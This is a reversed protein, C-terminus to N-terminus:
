TTSKPALVFSSFSLFFRAHSNVLTDRTCDNDYVYRTYCFKYCATVYLLTCSSTAHMVYLLTCIYSTLDHISDVAHEIVHIILRSLEHDRWKFRVNTM